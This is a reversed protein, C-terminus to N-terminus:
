EAGEKEDQRSKRCTLAQKWYPLKPTIFQQNNKPRVVPNLAITEKIM